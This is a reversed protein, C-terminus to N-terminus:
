RSSVNTNEKPLMADRLKAIAYRYRSAATNASTNLVEAIQSFTLEGWVHLVIAERQDDPLGQLAHRLNEEAAYDHRPPEFWIREAELSVTRQRSKMDNVVTNRVCAFLYAKVDLARRLSGTQILKLFVQQVADQAYSREGCVSVAFLLLSAGHRRYL